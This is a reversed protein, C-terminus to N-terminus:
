PLIEITKGKSNWRYGSGMWIEEAQELAPNLGDMGGFREYMKLIEDDSIRFDRDTDAWHVPAIRLTTDGDVVSEQRGSQSVKVTGSFSVLAGEEGSVQLLYGVDRQQGGNKRLWKLVTADRSTAEPVAAVVVGGAPIMERVLLPVESTDAIRIIVPFVLGSACTAPLSRVAQITGEGMLAPKKVIMLWAVLPIMVALGINIILNYAKLPIGLRTAPEDAQDPPNESSHESALIEALEVGLVEALRLSNERKVTPYQTNEWRSITDTTVGVATAVYLQTFGQDERLKRVVPGEIRVM